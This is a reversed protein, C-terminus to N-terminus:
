KNWGVVRHCTAGETFFITIGHQSQHPEIPTDAPILKRAREGCCSNSLLKNQRRQNTVM